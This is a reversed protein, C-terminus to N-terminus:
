HFARDFRAGADLMRVQASTLDALPGHGDTTRDLTADHLCLLAGDNTRRVDFEFGVRLALCARFGALTCEPAAHMLGRRGVMRPRPEAAALDFSLLAFLCYGFTKQM